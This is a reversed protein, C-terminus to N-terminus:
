LKYYLILFALKYYKFKYNNPIYLRRLDREFALNKVLVKMM